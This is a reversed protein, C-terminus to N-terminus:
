RVNGIILNYIARSTDDNYHLGDIMTYGAVTLTDHTNIYRVGALSGAMAANFAIVNEETTYPNEWVPNVSVFYTKAGKLAWEAAKANIATAYSAAHNTDNVGLCIVVKTGRGVIADASPFATSIMWDYGKGNECIWGAGGGGTATRMMVCRSDGIMLVGAAKAPTVAAPAAPAPTQAAQPDAAARAEAAIEPLPAPTPTATPAEASLYADSLFGEEDKYETRYWGGKDRGNVKIESGAPLIGAIEYDTSPGKRVRLESTTYLTQQPDIEKVEFSEEEEEPVPTPSPKPTPTATPVATPEPTPTAAAESQAADAGAQEAAVTESQETDQVTGADGGGCATMCLVASATLVLTLFGRKM